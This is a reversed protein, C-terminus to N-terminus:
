TLFSASHLNNWHEIIIKLRVHRHIFLTLVAIIQKVLGFFPCKLFICFIHDYNFMILTELRTNLIFIFSTTDKSWRVHFFVGKCHFIESTEFWITMRLSCILTLCCFLSSVQKNLFSQFVLMGLLSHCFFIM